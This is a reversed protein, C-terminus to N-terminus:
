NDFLIECIKKCADPKAILKTNEKMNELLSSNNILSSLKKYVDDNNKLWIAVNNDVLFQANEEEQGPLPNIIVLPLGSVLSETTTLGGPKTIVIDSINMLEPVKTTYSLIKMCDHKSANNVIDEFSHKMKENKGSIAIVQVDDFENALTELIHCTKSKGLGFEGGGFFLITKKNQKLGFENLIDNSNYSKLFRGSFPIGTAYIKEKPVGSSVLQEIMGSHAVFFYDVHSSNSIWQNHPAYDTMITAITADLKGHRKLMSCMQSGFFHTCIITDPKYQKLLKNFKISMLRNSASSFNKIIGKESKSYLKGWVKPVKKAMETYAKTTLKNLVKNVYEVCDVLQVTSNPQNEEIYEKMSRAASLHGGGYSAYIILVKKM